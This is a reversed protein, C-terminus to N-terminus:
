FVGFDHVYAIQGSSATSQFEIINYGSGTEGPYTGSYIWRPRISPLVAGNRKVFGPFPHALGTFVEDSSQLGFYGAAALDADLQVLDLSSTEEIFQNQFYGIPKKIIISISGTASLGRFAYISRPPASWRSPHSYFEITTFDRYDSGQGTPFDTQHVLAWFAPNLDSLVSQWRYFYGNEHLDSLEIPTTFQNDFSVQSNNEDLPNIIRENWPRYEWLWPNLGRWVPDLTVSFSVEIVDFGWVSSDSQSEYRPDIDTIIANNILWRLYGACGDGCCDADINELSFAIIPTNRRGGLFKLHELMQEPTFGKSPALTGKLELEKSEPISRTLPLFSYEGGVDTFKTSPTRWESTVELKVPTGNVGKIGHFLPLDGLQYLILSM